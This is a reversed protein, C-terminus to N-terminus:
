TPLANHCLGESAENRYVECRNRGSKKAQYLARDARVFVEDHQDDANFECIGCSLTLNIEEGNHNFKCKAIMERISETMVLAQSADTNPMLMVFEEGGYRAVFDSTRCNNRLLQGVLILTKDGAKHGYNDNIRKFFDIDWVALSFPSQYRRCRSAEMEIRDKYALRNPLGTLVDCMARDHELKLKIRLTETEVELSQLKATMLAIQQEAQRQREEEQQKHSVLQSMLHDLEERTLSKLSTLEDAQNTNDRINELRLVIDSNLKQRDDNTLRAANGVEDADRGIEGLEKTINSLFSDVDKHESAAYDKINLLLTMASDIIKNLAEDNSKAKLRQRLQSKQQQFRLPVSTNVLLEDIKQLLYANQEGSAAEVGNKENQKSIHVLTKSVAQLEPTLESLHAGAKLHKGITLLHPELLRHSGQSFILLQLVLKYLLKEHDGNSTAAINM